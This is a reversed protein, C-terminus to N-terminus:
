GAPSGAGIDQLLRGATHANAPYFAEVALEALTIDVATGFTSVTSFLALEDGSADRLRLPLLIEAGTIEEHPPELEVGPYAALEDHLSELEPDGTVSAQRRLRTLLHASWEALNVIRPAMGQPHLTVRLANAPPALLEPAVGDTLLHLADNADLLNYHRDIVVAPYPEHARLFRELAQRVPAMEKTELLREGYLPAYGAALLLGNRDRLPIELHDALHLVMERSPRARGTELFSVHRSSVAADLALELQSLSRRQRWSRLLEGVPPPAASVTM